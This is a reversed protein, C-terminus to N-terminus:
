PLDTDAGVIEITGGPVTELALPFATGLEIAMTDFATGPVVHYRLVEGLTEGDLADLDVGAFAEDTPAFATLTATEDDLLDLLEPHTSAAALLTDFGEAGGAVAEYAYTGPELGVDVFTAGDTAGLPEGDRSM